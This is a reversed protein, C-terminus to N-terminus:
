YGGLGNPRPGWKNNRRLRQRNAQLIFDPYRPDITAAAMEPSVPREAVPEPMPPVSGDYPAGPVLGQSTGGPGTGGGRHPVLQHPGPTSDVPGNYPPLGRWPSDLNDDMYSGTGGNGSTARNPTDDGGSNWWQGWRAADPLGGTGADRPGGPRAGPSPAYNESPPPEYAGLGLQGEMFALIAPDLIPNGFEDHAFYGAKALEPNHAIKGALRMEPSYSGANFSSNPDLYKASNYESAAIEADSRRGGRWVQGIPDWYRGSNPGEEESSAKLADIYGQADDYDDQQPLYSDWYQPTQYQWGPPTPVSM